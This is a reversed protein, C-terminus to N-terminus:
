LLQSLGMSCKSCLLRTSDKGLAESLALNSATEAGLLPSQNFAKGIAEHPSNRCSSAILTATPNRRPAFVQSGCKHGQPARTSAQAEM